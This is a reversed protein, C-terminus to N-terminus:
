PMTMRSPKKKRMGIGAKQRLIRMTRAPNKRARMPKPTKQLNGATGPQKKMLVSDRPEAMKKTGTRQNRTMPYKRTRMAKQPKRPKGAAKLRNNM